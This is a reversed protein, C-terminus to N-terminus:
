KISAKALFGWVACIAGFIIIPVDFIPESLMDVDLLLFVTGCIILFVGGYLSYEAQYLYREKRVNMRAADAREEEMKEGYPTRAGCHPCTEARRSIERQCDECITLKPNAVAM